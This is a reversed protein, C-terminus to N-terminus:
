MLVTRNKKKEPKKKKKKSKKECIRLLIVLSAGGRTTVPLATTIASNDHTCTTHTWPHWAYSTHVYAASSCQSSTSSDSFIQAAHQWHFNKTTLPCSTWESRLLQRTENSTWHQSPANLTWGHTETTRQRTDFPASCFRCAPLVQRYWTM